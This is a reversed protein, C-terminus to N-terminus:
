SGLSKKSQKTMSSSVWLNDRFTPSIGVWAGCYEMVAFVYDM